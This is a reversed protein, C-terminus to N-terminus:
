QDIFEIPKNEIIQGVINGLNTILHCNKFLEIKIGEIKVTLEDM